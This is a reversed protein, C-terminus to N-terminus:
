GRPLSHVIAALVDLREGIAPVEIAWEAEQCGITGSRAYFDRLGQGPALLAPSIAEAITGEPLTVMLDTYRRWYTKTGSGKRVQLHRITVPVGRYNGAVGNPVRQFGHSAVLEDLALRGRDNGARLERFQNMSLGFAAATVGGAVVLAVVIIIAVLVLMGVVVWIM